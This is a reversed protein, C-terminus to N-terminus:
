DRLDGCRICRKLNFSQIKGCSLCKRKKTKDEKM